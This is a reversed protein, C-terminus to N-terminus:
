GEKFKHESERARKASEAGNQDEPEPKSTSPDKVATMTNRQPRGEPGNAMM